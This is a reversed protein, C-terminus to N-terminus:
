GSTRVVSSTLVFTMRKIKSACRLYARIKITKDRVTEQNYRVKENQWDVKESFDCIM